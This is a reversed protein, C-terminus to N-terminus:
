RMIILHKGGRTMGNGIMEVKESITAKGNRCINGLFKVKLEIEQEYSM